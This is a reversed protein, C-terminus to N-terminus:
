NEDDHEVLGEEAAMKRLKEKVVQFRKRLRIVEKDISEDTISEEDLMVRAIEKWSLKRSVRLILLTQDDLPLQERLADVRTKVETREMALTETRVKQAIELLGSSRPLPEERGRRRQLEAIYRSAAHRAITYSWVRASCQWRFGGIGRWLDESFSSFVESAADQDRLRSLLFRLIEPGYSEMVLTAAAGLDNADCFARIQVEAAERPGAADTVGRTQKRRGNAAQANM